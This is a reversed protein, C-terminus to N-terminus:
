VVGAVTLPSLPAVNLTWTVLVAPFLVLLAAVSVTFGALPTVTVSFGAVPLRSSPSDPLRECGRHRTVALVATVHATSPM